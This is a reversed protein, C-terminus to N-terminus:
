DSESTVAPPPLKSTIERHPINTVLAERTVIAKPLEGGIQTFYIFLYIFCNNKNTATHLLCADSQHFLPNRETHMLM